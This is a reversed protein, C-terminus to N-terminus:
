ADLVVLAMPLDDDLRAISSKVVSLSASLRM